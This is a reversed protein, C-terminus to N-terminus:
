SRVGLVRRAVRHFADVDSEAGPIDGASYSEGSFPWLGLGALLGARFEGPTVPDVAVADPGIAGVIGPQVPGGLLIQVYGDPHHDTGGDSGPQLVPTRGFETTIAVLTDDLDLKDPDNEGPRNINQALARLSHTLNQSHRQLHQDHADLGGTQDLFMLGYDIALAYRAPAHRNTLVGVAGEITMSPIDVMVGVECGASRRQRFMRRTLVDQLQESAEMAALGHTYAALAGSRVPAGAADVTVSQLETALARRLGDVAQRRDGVSTRALQDVVNGSSGLRLSLPRAASPHLGTLNAPGPYDVPSPADAYLVYSSPTAREPEQELQYRAVHAATGALRPNGLRQGCLALPAAAQHPRQDHAMVVIRMRSLLDRRRRFAGVLPGLNVTQGLADVGYPELLSIFGPVRCEDRFWREHESEFLWWQQRPFVPDDPRGYEPVVYFSEFPGMGGTLFLELCREARQGPPLV